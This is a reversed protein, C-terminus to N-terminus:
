SYDLYFSLDVAVAALFYQYAYDNANQKVCMNAVFSSSSVGFAVRTMRYDHLSDNPSSWWVFRHCDHDPMTLEIACYMQSVDAVLAVCHTRFRLLIDTLSSHVAPGVMLTDNFSIGTSSKASADFVAWVKTMISSSKRVAHM